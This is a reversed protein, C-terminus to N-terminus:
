VVSKRDTTGGALAAAIMVDETAGVSPFSLAIKAGRLGYPARCELVGHKEEIEAGLERLAKLHMDIPRPGIECGGPFSLRARGTRALVAGLFVISSRTRRMLSDPIESQNVGDCNILLAGDSRQAKGGLYRLIACSAEVDSLRPCNFIVNEGKTLLTAAIIPLASNKAGQVSVEGELRQRGAILLRSM